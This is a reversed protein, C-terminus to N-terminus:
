DLGDSDCSFCLVSQTAFGSNRVTVATSVCLQAQFLATIEDRANFVWGKNLFSFTQWLTGKNQRALRPPRVPLM